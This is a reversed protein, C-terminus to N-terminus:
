TSPELGEPTVQLGGITPTTEKYYDLVHPMKCLDQGCPSKITLGVLIFGPLIYNCTGESFALPNLELGEPTM